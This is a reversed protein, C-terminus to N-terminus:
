VATLKPLQKLLESGCERCIGHSNPVTTWSSITQKGVAQCWACYVPFKPATADPINQTTQLEM